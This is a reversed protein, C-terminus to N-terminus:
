WYDPKDAGFFAKQNVRQVFTGISSSVHIINYKYLNPASGSFFYMRTPIVASFPPPLVNLIYQVNEVTWETCRNLCFKTNLRLNWFFYQLINSFISCVNEGVNQIETLLAGIQVVNGSVIPIKNAPPFPSWWVPAWDEAAGSVTLGRVYELNTHRYRIYLPMLHMPMMCLFRIHICLHLSININSCHFQGM